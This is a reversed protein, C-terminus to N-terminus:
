PQELRREIRGIAWNIEEGTLTWGAFALVAIVERKFEQHLALAREDDGLHHALLTLALQAPGSGEYGWEFGNPSHNRLDFRPQLTEGNATVVAVGKFRMGRYVNESRGGPRKRKSESM